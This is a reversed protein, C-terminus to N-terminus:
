LCPTFVRHSPTGHHGGVMPSRQQDPQEARHPGPLAVALQLQAARLALYYEPKEGQPRVPRHGAALEDVADPALIRRRARHVRQVDMHGHQPPRQFRVPGAPRRALEQQGGPRPIRQPQIGAVQIRLHEAPVKVRSAPRARCAVQAGSRPLEVRRQPQPLRNGQRPSGARPGFDFPDPQDLHPQGRDLFPGLDHEHEATGGRRRGLQGAQHTFIREPFPQAALQHQCQVPTSPLRIGQGGEGNATTDEALLKAQLRTLSQPPQVLLDQGSVGGEPRRGDGHGHRGRLAYPGRGRLQGPLHVCEGAPHPLEGRKVLEGV